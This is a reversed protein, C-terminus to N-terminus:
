GIRYTIFTDAATKRLYEGTDGGDPVGGGSASPLHASPIKGTEDLTAHTPM